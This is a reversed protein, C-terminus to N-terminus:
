HPEELAGGIYIMSLLAFVFAQLFSIILGLGMFIAPVVIPIMKIWLMIVTHDAFMNAVLRITLTLMRAVHLVLELPLFLPTLPRIHWTKGGIEMHMLAPGMFQYIYKWGHTKIGVANYYLFSIIAWAAATAVDSTAGGVWPVLGMLNSVLIFFFITAVVPFHKRYEPGMISEALEALQVVILEVVNRVTVGEDPIVGGGEVSLSRKISFGALVLLAVALLSAQFVWNFGVHALPDYISTM